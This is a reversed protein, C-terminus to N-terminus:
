GACKNMPVCSPNPGRGRKGWCETGNKERLLLAKERRLEKLRKEIRAKEAVVADGSAASGGDGGTWGGGGGAVLKNSGEDKSAPDVRRAVADAAPGQWNWAARRDFKKAAAERRDKKSPLPLPPYAISGSDESSSGSSTAGMALAASRHAQVVHPKPRPKSHREGLNNPALLGPPSNGNCDHGSSSVGFVADCLDSTHLKKTTSRDLWAVVAKTESTRLCIKLERWVQRLEDVGVLGSDQHDLRLITGELLDRPSMLLSTSASGAARRAAATVGVRIREVANKVVAPERVTRDLGNLVDVEEIYSLMPHSMTKIEKCLLEYSMEGTGDLDYHEVVANAEDESAHVGMRKLAGVLERPDLKGSADADWDLFAERIIAHSVGGKKKITQELADRLRVKFRDVVRNSPKEHPRATFHLSAHSRDSGEGTNNGPNGDSAVVPASGDRGGTKDTQEKPLQHVFPGQDYGCVDDVLQMCDCGAAPDGNKAYFRTLEKAQTASLRMNLTRLAGRLQKTDLAGIRETDWNLFLNKLIRSPSGGAYKVRKDIVQQLKTRFARIMPSEDKASRSKGLLNGQSRASGMLRETISQGSEFLSPAGAAADRLLDAHPIQCRFNDVRSADQTSYHNMIEELEMRTVSVGLQSLAGVLHEKSIM